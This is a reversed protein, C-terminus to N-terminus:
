AHHVLGPQAPGPPVQLPGHCLRGHHARVRRQLGLGAPLPKCDARAVKQMRPGARQEVLLQRSVSRPLPSRPARPSQIRPQIAFLYASCTAFLMCAQMTTEPWMHCARDQRQRDLAQRRHTVACSGLKPKAMSSCGYILQKSTGIATQELDHRAQGDGAGLAHAQLRQHDTVCADPM